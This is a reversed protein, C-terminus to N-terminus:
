PRAVPEVPAAVTTRSSRTRGSTSRRWITPTRCRAAPCGRRAREIVCLWGAEVPEHGADACEGLLAASAHAVLARAVGDGVGSVVSRAQELREAAATATAPTGCPPPRPSRPTSATSTRRGTTPGCPTPTPSPPFSTARSRRRSRTSPVHRVAHRPPCRAARGAGGRGPRGPVARAGAHSPGRLGDSGMATLQVLASESIVVAREGLGSISPVARPWWRRSPSTATARRRAGDGGRDGTRSRRDSRARDAFPGAPRAGPGHRVPRRARPVLATGPAVAGRVRQVSGVLAPDLRAAFGDDGTGLSRRARAGRRAGQTALLEADAFRRQFFRVYALLGNAWGAGSATGWSRSSRPPSTSGPRRWRWIAPWSRWGRRTSVCGPAGAVTTWGSPSVRPRASCGNPM